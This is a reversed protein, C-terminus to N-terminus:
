GNVNLNVNLFNRIVVTSLYLGKSTFQSVDFGYATFAWGTSVRM